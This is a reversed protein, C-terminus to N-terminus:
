NTRRKKPREDARQIRGGRDRRLSQLGGLVTSVPLGREQAERKVAERTSLGEGVSHRIRSDVEM